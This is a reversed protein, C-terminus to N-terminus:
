PEMTEWDILYFYVEDTTTVQFRKNGKIFFIQGSVHLTHYNIWSEEKTVRDFERRFMLIQDSSRSILVKEDILFM